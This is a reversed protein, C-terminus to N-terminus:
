MSAVSNFGHSPCTSECSIPSGTDCEPSISGQPADPLHSADGDNEYYYFCCFFQNNM